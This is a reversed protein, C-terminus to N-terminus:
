RGAQKQPRMLLMLSVRRIHSRYAVIKSSWVFYVCVSFLLPDDDDIQMLFLGSYNSHTGDSAEVSHLCLLLNRGMLDTRGITLSATMWSM